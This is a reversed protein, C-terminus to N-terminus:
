YFEVLVEHHFEDFDRITMVLNGGYVGMRTMGVDVVDEIGL